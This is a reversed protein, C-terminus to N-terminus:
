RTLLRYDQQFSLSCQICEKAYPIINPEKFFGTSYTSNNNIIELLVKAPLEEQEREKGRGLVGLNVASKVAYVNIM